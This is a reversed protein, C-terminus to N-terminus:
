YRVKIKVQDDLRGFTNLCGDERWSVIDGTNFMRSRLVDTTFHHIYKPFKGTMAFNTSRTDAQLSSHYISIDARLVRVVSGCLDRRVWRFLTRKTIWFIYQLIQSHSGLRSHCGQSINTHLISFRSRPRAAYTTSHLM